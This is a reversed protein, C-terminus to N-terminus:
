ITDIRFVKFIQTHRVFGKKFHLISQEKITMVKELSGPHLVYFQVNTNKKLYKIIEWQALHGIAVGCAELNRDYAGTSYLANIGTIHCFSAGVLDGSFNRVYCIIGEGNKIAKGQSEWNKLSRVEREAAKVHLNVFDGINKFNNSTIIESTYIKAERNILSKYSKRLGKWIETIDPNLDCYTVSINSYTYNENLYKSLFQYCESLQFHVQNINNNHALHVIWEVLKPLYIDIDKMYEESIIPEFIRKSYHGLWADKGDGVLYLPWFGVVKGDLIISFSFDLVKGFESYYEHAWNDFSESYNVNKVCNRFRDWIKKKNSAPLFSISLKQFIQIQNM